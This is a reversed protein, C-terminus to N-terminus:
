ILGQILKVSFLLSIKIIKLLFLLLVSMGIKIPIPHKEALGDILGMIKFLYYDRIFSLYEYM